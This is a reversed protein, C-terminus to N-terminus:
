KNKDYDVLVAGKKFYTTKLYSYQQIVLVILFFVKYRYPILVIFSLFLSFRFILLRLCKHICKFNDTM